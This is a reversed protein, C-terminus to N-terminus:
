TYVYVTHLVLRYMEPQTEHFRHLRESVCWVGYGESHLHLRVYPVALSRPLSVYMYMLYMNTPNRIISIHTLKNALPAYFHFLVAVILFSVECGFSVEFM